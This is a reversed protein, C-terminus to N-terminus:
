VNDFVVIEPNDALMKALNARMTPRHEDPCDLEVFSNLAAAAGTAIFAGDGPAKMLMHLLIAFLKSGYDSALQDFEPSNSKIQIAPGGGARRVTAGMAEGDAIADTLAKPLDAM